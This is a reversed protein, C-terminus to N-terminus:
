PRVDETWSLFHMVNGNLTLRAEFVWAGTKGSWETGTPAYTARLTTETVVPWTFGSLIQQTGSARHRATVVLSKSAFSTWDVGEDGFVYSITAFPAVMGLVIQGETM